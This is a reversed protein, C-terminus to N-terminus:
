IIDSSFYEKYLRDRLLLIDTCLETNSYIDVLGGQVM